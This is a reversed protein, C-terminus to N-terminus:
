AKVRVVTALTAPCTSIVTLNNDACYALLKNYLKRHDRKFVIELERYEEFANYFHSEANHYQNNVNLVETVFNILDKERM